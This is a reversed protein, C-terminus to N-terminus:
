LILHANIKMDGDRSDLAYHIIRNDEFQWRSNGPKWITMISPIEFTTWNSMYDYVRFRLILERAWITMISPIDFDIWMNMNDYYESDWFKNVHKMDRAGHQQKGAM